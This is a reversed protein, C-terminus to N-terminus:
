RLTECLFELFSPTHIMQRRIQEPSGIQFRIEEPLQISSAKLPDISRFFVHKCVPKTNEASLRTTPKVNFKNTQPQKTTTTTFTTTTNRRRRRGGGGGEEEEEDKEGGGGGGGGGEEEDKEGGGGGGGRQDHWIRDSQVEM